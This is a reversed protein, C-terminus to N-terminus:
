SEADINRQKKEGFYKNFLDISLGYLGRPLFLVAILIVSGYILTKYTNFSQLTENILTITTAGIVPGVINGSGGFLLMTLLMVSQTSQFSDPSIYGVFHAYMSGAFSAFIASIIFAIVKYKRVYIGVGDAATLNERIALFSRGTSSNVLRTKVFLFLIVVILIFLGFNKKPELNFFWFSIGPINKVGTMAGTLKSKSLFVYVMNSTAITLLSLFQHVLKSAPVAIISAFVVSLLIGSLIGIWVPVSYNVSLLSSTYAGIGMFMAHGLSIQGTYGFLIDLGSVAIVYISCFVFLTVYYANDSIFFYFLIIAFIISLNIITRKHNQIIDIFRGKM